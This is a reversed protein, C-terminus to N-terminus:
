EEVEASLAKRAILCVTSMSMGTPCSIEYHKIIRELAETLVTVRAQLRDEIPRSNWGKWHPWTSDKDAGPVFSGNADCGLCHIQCNGYGFMERDVDEIGCFPCPKLTPADTM